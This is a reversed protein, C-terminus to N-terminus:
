AFPLLVRRAGRRLEIGTEGVVKFEPRRTLTKSLFISGVSILGTPTGASIVVSAGESNSFEVAAGLFFLPPRGRLNVGSCAKSRLRRRLRLRARV